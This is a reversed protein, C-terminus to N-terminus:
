SINALQLSVVGKEGWLMFSEGSLVKVAEKVHFFYRM